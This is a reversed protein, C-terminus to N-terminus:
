DGYISGPPCSHAEFVSKACATVLHAQALYESGPLIVAASAINADGPRETLVAHLAPFADKHTPGVLKLSLKPAFGSPRATPSRSSIQSRPARKM